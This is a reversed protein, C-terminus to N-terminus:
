KKRALITAFQLQLFQGNEDRKHLQGLNENYKILEWDDYYAALEGEKFTFSFPLPCPHQETDMAAVILHYGGPRTQEQMNRIIASVKEKELFMFVVTSIIWDYEQELSASNIDYVGAKVDLDELDRVQLLTELSPIDKDVATVDFGQQALFLANRGNGCGLDLVKCPEIRDLAELVESHTRSFGYKKAFYDEPRCFFELFFETDETLLTVRHWAQPEVLPVDDTPEYCFEGLIENDDSIPEFKLQGKLVKIKAWTGVQTNHKTLFHKPVTEQNWIPMRKYAVLNTM